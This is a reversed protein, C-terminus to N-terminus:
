ECFSIVITSAYLMHCLSVLPLLLKAFAAGFSGAIELRFWRAPNNPANTVSLGSPCVRCMPLLLRCRICEICGSLETIERDWIRTNVNDNNYPRMSYVIQMIRGITHYPINLFCNGYSIQALLLISKKANKAKTPVLSNYFSPTWIKLGGM